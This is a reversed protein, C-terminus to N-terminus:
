KEYRDQIISQASKKDNEQESELHEDPPKAVLDKKSCHTVTLEENFNHYKFQFGSKGKSWKIAAEMVTSGIKRITAM